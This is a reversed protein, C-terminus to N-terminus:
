IIYLQASSETGNLDPKLHKIFISELLHLDDDERCRGVIIFSQELLPHSCAAAHDRIASFTPATLMM